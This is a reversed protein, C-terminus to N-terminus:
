STPIGSNSVKLQTSAKAVTGGVTAVPSVLLPVVPEQNVKPSENGSSDAPGVASLDKPNSSLIEEVEEAEDKIEVPPEPTDSAVPRPRMDFNDRAIDEDWRVPFIEKAEDPPDPRVESQSAGALNRADASNETM